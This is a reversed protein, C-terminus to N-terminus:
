RGIEVTGAGESSVPLSLAIVVAAMLLAVLCTRARTGRTWSMPSGEKRPHRQGRYVGELPDM